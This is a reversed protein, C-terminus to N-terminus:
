YRVQDRAIKLTEITTSLATEYGVKLLKLERENLNDLKLAGLMVSGNKKFEELNEILDYFNLYPENNRGVLPGKAWNLRGM